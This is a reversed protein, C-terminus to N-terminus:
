TLASLRLATVRSPSPPSPLCGLVATLRTLWHERSSPATTQNQQPCLWGWAGLLPDQRCLWAPGALGWCRGSVQWLHRGHWVQLQRWAQLPDAQSTAGEQRRGRGAGQIHVRGRLGQHLRHTFTICPHTSTLCPRTQTCRTLPAPLTHARQHRVHLLHASCGPLRPM